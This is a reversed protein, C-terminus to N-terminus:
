CCCFVLDVDVKKCPFDVNRGIFDHLNLMIWMADLGATNYSCAAEKAVQSQKRAFFTAFVQRQNGVWHIDADDGALTRIKNAPRMLNMLDQTIDVATLRMTFFIGLVMLVTALVYCITVLM